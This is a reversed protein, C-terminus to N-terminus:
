DPQQSPDCDGWDGWYDADTNPNASMYTHQMDFQQGNQTFVWNYYGLEAFSVQSRIKFKSHGDSFAYNGGGDHIFGIWSDDSDNAKTTGDPFSSIRPLCVAERTETAREQFTIFDAPQAVSTLSKESGCGNMVYSTTGALGVPNPNPAMNADPDKAASICDLMGM